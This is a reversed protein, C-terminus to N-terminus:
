RQVLMLTYVNNGVAGTGPEQGLCFIIDKGSSNADLTVMCKMPNTADATVALNGGVFGASPTDAAGLTITATETPSTAGTDLDTLIAFSGTGNTFSGTIPKVDDGGADNMFVLGSYNGNLATTSVITSQKMALIVESGGGTNKVVAGGAPNFYMTVGGGVSGVGASCSYTGITGAGLAGDTINYKSPLAASNTSATYQFVGFSEQTPSTVDSTTSTLIWNLGLNSSPCEGTPVMPIIPSGDGLPKLLFVYGPIYLAIAQDGPSPAGGGTASTVTLRLYGTSLEAYTGNVTLGATSETIVFTRDTNLTANWNSGPGAYSTGGAPGTNGCAALYMAPLACFSLLMLARKM